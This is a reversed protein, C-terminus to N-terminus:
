FWTHGNRCQWQIPSNASIYEKSLCKGGHKRALERMEKITHKIQGVCYPCWSEGKKVNGPTAYWQHKEKCEWLLKTNMNYYKDSLCKGGRKVALEKMQEITNKAKGSCHPCWRGINKVSYSPAYWEHGKSCQWKMKDDCST